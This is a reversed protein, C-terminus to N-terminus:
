QKPRLLKREFIWPYVDVAIQLAAQADDHEERNTLIRAKGSLAGFHRPELALTKEIDALSEDYKEQLFYIFARQNWGESYNPAAEVVKDLIVRAGEYDHWRRREMADDMLKRIDADPAADLWSSWIKQAVYRAGDETEATKLIAFLNDREVNQDVNQAATIARQLAELEKARETQPDSVGQQQPPPQQDQQPPVLTLAAAQKPGALLLALAGALVVSHINVM